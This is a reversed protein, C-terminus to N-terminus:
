SSSQSATLVKLSHEVLTILVTKASARRRVDCMLVPVDPDLDLASRVDETDYRDAGDFCNVAVIFPTGRQEFYDISPFCDTLRRTDALVVAGLAGYSLEDWMFWFREQGPTGFLYVVLGERITIRGFDMAVTTTTKGEVGEVDDIGIGRDSLVEETRLPRIESIAGVLTTKGVGFGGAILIKLAVPEDSPEFDM